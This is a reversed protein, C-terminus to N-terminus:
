MKGYLGEKLADFLNAAVHEEGDYSIVDSGKVSVESGDEMIFTYTTKDLDAKQVLVGSTIEPNFRFTTMGKLGSKWATFYVGKFKDYPYDSPVNITKSIASDCWKQVVSQIAIHDEITLNDTTRWYDPLSKDGYKQKWELFAYDFIEEQTKTKKGALRINRLYSNAFVPEIGNSCNNGWTLSMTGTPAVSTAHSWRVGYEIIDSIVQEKNDFTDLLRKMYGSEMFLKRHEPDSFVPACGKEKAIDIGEFLSEQALVLMIKEAFDVSVGSGYSIGMMNM